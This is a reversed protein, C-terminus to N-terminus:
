TKRRGKQIATYFFFIHITVNLIQTLQLEVLFGLNSFLQFYNSSFPHINTKSGELGM